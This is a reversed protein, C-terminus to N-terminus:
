IIATLTLNRTKLFLYRCLIVEKQKLNIERLSRLPRLTFFAKKYFIRQARQAKALFKKESVTM